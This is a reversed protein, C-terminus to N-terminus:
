CHLRGVSALLCRSERAIATYGLLATLVSLLGTSVLLWTTAQTPQSPEEDSMASVLAPVGVEYGHVLVPTPCM